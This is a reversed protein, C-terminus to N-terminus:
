ILITGKFNSSIDNYNESEEDEPSNGTAGLNESDSTPTEEDALQCLSPNDLLSAIKLILASSLFKSVPFLLCRHQATNTKSVLGVAEDYVELQSLFSNCVAMNVGGVAEIVKYKM